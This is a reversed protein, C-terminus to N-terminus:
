EIVPQCKLAYELLGVVVDKREIMFQAMARVTFVDLPDDQSINLHEIFVKLVEDILSPEIGYLRFLRVDNRKIKSRESLFVFGYRFIEVLYDCAKEYSQSQKQKILDILYLLMSRLDNNEETNPLDFWPEKKLRRFIEPM